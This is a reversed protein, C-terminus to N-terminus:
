EEGAREKRKKKRAGATKKNNGQTKGSRYAASRQGQSKYNM